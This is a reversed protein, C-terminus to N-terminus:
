SAAAVEVEGPKVEPFDIVTHAVHNVYNTLINHSVHAVTELIDSDTLGAARAAALDADNM